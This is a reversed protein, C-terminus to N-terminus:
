GKRAFLTTTNNQIIFGVQHV